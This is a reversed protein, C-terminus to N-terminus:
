RYAAAIIASFEDALLSAGGVLVGDVGPLDLIEAANASKVSGGYLIPVHRRREGLAARLVAHMSTIDERSPTLGSGIAWLPEYAIAVDGEAPEPLSALLQERVFSEARGSKRLDLSEGVCVLPILEARMAAAVKAAVEADTEGHRERRESHGLIVYRCGAEALMPASIDGTFAGSSEAHCDQGGLAIPSDRLMAGVEQLFISPPCIVTQVGAIRTPLSKILQSVLAASSTRSGNMKWNGAILRTETM